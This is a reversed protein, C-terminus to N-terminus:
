KTRTHYRTAWILPLNYASPTQSYPASSPTHPRPPHFYLRPQPLNWLAYCWAETREVLCLDPLWILSTSSPLLMHWTLLLLSIYALNQHPFKFSAFQLSSRCTSPHVINLLIKLLYSSLSSAPNNAEPYPFITPQRLCPLSVQSEMFHIKNASSTSCKWPRSNHM